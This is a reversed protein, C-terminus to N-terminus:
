TKLAMGRSTSAINQSGQNADSSTSNNCLSVADSSLVPQAISNSRVPEAIALRESPQSALKATFLAAPDSERTNINSKNSFNQAAFQDGRTETLAVSGM